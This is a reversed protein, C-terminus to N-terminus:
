LTLVPVILEHIKVEKLKTNILRDQGVVSYTDLMSSM